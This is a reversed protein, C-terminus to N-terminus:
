INSYIESWSFSWGIPPLTNSRSHLATATVKRPEDFMTGSMTKGLVSLTDNM